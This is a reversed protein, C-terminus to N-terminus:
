IEFQVHVNPRSRWPSAASILGGVEERGSKKDAAFGNVVEFVLFGCNGMFM